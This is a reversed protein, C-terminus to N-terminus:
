DQTARPDDVTLWPRSAAQSYQRDMMSHYTVERQMDETGRHNPSNIIIGGWRDLEAKHIRAQEAFHQSRNWLLRGVGTTICVLTVLVLMTRLSFRFRRRRNSGDRLRNDRPIWTNQDPSCSSALRAQWAHVIRAM